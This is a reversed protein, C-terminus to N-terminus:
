RAEHITGALSSPAMPWCRWATVFAAPLLWRVLPEASQSGRELQHRCCRQDVEVVVVVTVVVTMRLLMVM